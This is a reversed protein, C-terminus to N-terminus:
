RERMGERSAIQRTQPRPKNTAPRQQQQQHQGDGDINPMSATTPPAAPALRFRRAPSIFSLCLRDINVEAKLLKANIPFGRLGLAHVGSLSTSQPLLGDSANCADIMSDHEHEGCRYTLQEFIRFGIM